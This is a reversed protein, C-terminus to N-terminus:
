VRMAELLRALSDNQKAASPPASNTTKTRKTAKSKLLAKPVNKFATLDFANANATADLQASDDAFRQEIADDASLWTEADMMARLEERDIGTRTAYIGAIEKDIQALLRSTKALERTDGLAITWANHIMLFSGEGMIINDGAMAILSAASAALGHIRVHVQSPHEVLLNYAAIGAFVDGGPSNINVIILSTNVADLTRKFDEARLGYDGIVGFIDIETTDNARAHVTISAPPADKNM